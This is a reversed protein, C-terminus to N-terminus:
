QAREVCTLLVKGHKVATISYQIVSIKRVNFSYKPDQTKVESDVVKELLVSLITFNNYLHIIRLMVIQKSQFFIHYTKPSQIKFIFSYREDFEMDHSNERPFNIITCLHVFKIQFFHNFFTIHTFYKQKIAKEKIITNCDALLKITQLVLFEVELTVYVPFDFHKM